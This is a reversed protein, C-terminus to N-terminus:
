FVHSRWFSCLGPLALSVGLQAVSPAILSAVAIMEVTGSGQAGGIIAAVIWVFLIPNIHWQAMALTLVDGIGSAQTVAGLSGGTGTIQLIVGLMNLSERVSQSGKKKGIFNWAIILSVIVGCLMAIVRNSIFQVFVPVNDKGALVQRVTGSLILIIPVFISLMAAAFSPLRDYEKEIEEDKQVEEDKESDWFRENKDLITAYIRHSIVATILGILVGIVFMPGLPIGLIEAGALPGPTRLIFCHAIGAGAALAGIFYPLPYETVRVLGRALLVVVVYVVDYFIPISAIFGTGLIAYPTKEKNEIKRQYLAMLM